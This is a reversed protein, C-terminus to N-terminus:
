NYYNYLSDAIKM